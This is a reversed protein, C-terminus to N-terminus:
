PLKLTTSWGDSRYVPAIKTNLQDIIIQFASRNDGSIPRYTENGYVNHYLLMPAATTIGLSFFNVIDEAIDVIDDLSDLKGDWSTLLNNFAAERSLSIFDDGNTCVPDGPNAFEWVLSTTNSLRKAAPAIGHGSVFPGGPFSRGAQRMPNGLLFIGVCDSLRNIQGSMLRQFVISQIMAGQSTGVLAFQGANSNIYNTVIDVGKDVSPQMPKVNNMYGQIFVHEFSDTDLGTALKNGELLQAYTYSQMQGTISAAVDTGICEYVKIKPM